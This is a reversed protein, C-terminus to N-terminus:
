RQMIIFIINKNEPLIRAGAAHAPVAGVAEAQFPVVAVVFTDGRERLIDPVLDLGTREIDLQDRVGVPEVDAHGVSPPVGAPIDPVDAGVAFPHDVVAVSRIVDLNVDGTIRIEQARHVLLVNEEGALTVRRGFEIELLWERGAHM